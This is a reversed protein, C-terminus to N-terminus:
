SVKAGLYHYSIAKKNYTQLNYLKTYKQANTEFGDIEKLEISKIAGTKEDMIQKYIVYLM